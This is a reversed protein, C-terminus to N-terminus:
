TATAALSEQLVEGLRAMGEDIQELSAVSYSLRLTNDGGGNAFFPGGPVYAVQRAVAAQLLETSDHGQPLTVWVFMGGVPRTWRVGTPFSAELAALMADRQRRYYARVREIQGSMFDGQVVELTLQQILTSTHLDSAQKLRNILDLLEPQAIMWALRLGPALIKSFTSSYVVQEPALLHLSPLAEGAFRLEGYPDDEFIPVGYRACLEVLRERRPLSLRVGSPNDFNPIVYLLKPREALAEELADMDFGDDDLPVTRYRVQYPDFARLAGMYTPAGVVVTDGPDLLAKAILDLAQQSGSLIQVQEPTAGHREAIWSRLAFSGQTTSYQLAKAGAEALVRDSATRLREIPFLSPAPLGGAFSIVESGQTLKLIERIASSKVMGSREAFHANWNM